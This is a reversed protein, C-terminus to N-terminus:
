RMLWYFSIGGHLKYKWGGASPMVAEGRMDVVEHHVPGVRLGGLNKDNDQFGAFRRRQVLMLVGLLHEVDQFALADKADAGFLLFIGHMGRIDDADRRGRKMGDTTDAFLGQTVQGYVTKDGTAGLSFGTPISV